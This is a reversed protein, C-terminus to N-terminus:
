RSEYVRWGLVQEQDEKVVLVKINVVEDSDNPKIFTRYRANEGTVKKQLGKGTHNTQISYVLEKEADEFSTNKLIEKIEKNNSRVSPRRTQKKSPEITDQLGLGKTSLAARTNFITTGSASKDTVAVPAVVPVVSPDGLLYFQALTKLEYPDLQPGSDTLFRQRAELFARGVSVDGKLISKIFYQTILDALANSDAPGYAITSSGLFAIAGNKLYTHCISDEAPQLMSADYLQAGYCCEAAVITGASVNDALNSSNLAVPYNSGRQGYYNPDTSAGHCNYFHTLPRLQIKSYKAATTEKKLPANLLKSYDAFMSQLSMETSKHWVQATVAFYKNYQEAPLSKHRIANAIVTQLYSINKQKGVKDPIRSVVRTPGTFNDITNSYSKDCAYPLDSLVFKDEDDAPNIIEQFPIVDGAGLIVIYAPSYKKYLDDVVRKCESESLTKVKKVGATKCSTADDIYVLKTDLKKVKDAKQLRKILAELKSLNTGYKFALSKKSSIILKIPLM